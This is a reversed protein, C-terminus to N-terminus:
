RVQNLLQPTIYFCMLKTIDIVMQGLSFALGVEKKDFWSILLQNKCINIMQFGLGYIGRGIIMPVISRYQCGLSLILQGFM